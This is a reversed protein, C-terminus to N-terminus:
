IRPKPENPENRAYTFLSIRLRKNEVYIKLGMARCASERQIGRSLFSHKIM